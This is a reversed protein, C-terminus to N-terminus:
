IKIKDNLKEKKNELKISEYDDIVGGKEKHEKLRDNITKV